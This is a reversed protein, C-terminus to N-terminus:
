SIAAPQRTLILQQYLDAYRAAMRDSSYHIAHRRAQDALTTRLRYDTIVELIAQHWAAADDAPVFVAAGGWLERFTPIDALVLACGHAAAELVALGFPEYRSPAAYVAADKFQRMMERSGLRGTLHVNEADPPEDGAGAIIVPWPLGSAAIALTRINKALDWLRGSALVQPYKLPDDASMEVGNSIVTCDISGYHQLLSQRMSRSPAVVHDAAKLGAAVARGYREWECPAPGGKVAHWWSLVCSHGAVLLPSRWPLSGHVYGNLHILDPTHVRELELLWEGARELDEWPDEMWELRVHNWVVDVNSLEKVEDWQSATPEPGMGAIVFRISPLARCLQHCYTWVGGVADATM